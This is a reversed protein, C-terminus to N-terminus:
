VVDPGTLVRDIGYPKICVEYRELCARRRTNPAKIMLIEYGGDAFDLVIAILVGRDTTSERIDGRV